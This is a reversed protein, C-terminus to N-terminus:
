SWITLSKRIIYFWPYFVAFYSVIEFFCIKHIIIVYYAIKAWKQGLIRKLVQFKFIRYSRRTKPHFQNNQCNWGIPDVPRLILHVLDPIFQIMTLLLTLIYYHLLWKTNNQLHNYVISLPALWPYVPISYQIM